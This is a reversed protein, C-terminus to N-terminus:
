LVSVEVVESNGENKDSSYKVTVKWIGSSLSSKSIYIPRCQSSSADIFAESTKTITSEGQKSVTATCTGKGDIVGNTFARIELNDGYIDAYSIGVQVTSKVDGTNDSNEDKTAASNKKGDQSEALEQETPPSYNVITYPTDDQLPPDAQSAQWFYLTAMSGCFLFATAILIVKKRNSVQRQTKTKM